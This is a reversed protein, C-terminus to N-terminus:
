VKGPQLLTRLGHVLAALGLSLMAIYFVISLVNPSAATVEVFTTFAGAVALLVGAAIFIGAAWLPTPPTYRTNCATCVRDKAFAIWREPRKETYEGGGCSPCTKSIPYVGPISARVQRREQERRRAAQMAATDVGCTSCKGDSGAGPQSCKTHVPSDCASCFKGELVSGIRQQCIACTAGVLQPM